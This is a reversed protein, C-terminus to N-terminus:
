PAKGVRALTVIFVTGSGADHCARTAAALTAGTTMVDDVIVVPRGAIQHRKRPHVRIAHELTKRREERNLGDLSRTHRTRQLLDPCCSHDLQAALARALLASQNYRRKVMRVWHLPIPAILAHDPVIGRIANALWLGAPRAIEQRDGHKFALVLRRGTDQYLMAARGRAWPRPTEICHDCLPDDGGDTGPLPVGCADCVTGGIFATDRWCRGCLGFDGDVVEGCGLCRAPYIADLGTQLGRLM